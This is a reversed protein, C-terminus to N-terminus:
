TKSKRYGAAQAEEETWFYQEGRLYDIKVKGYHMSGPLHYVKEGDTQINGKIPPHNNCWYFWSAKIYEWIKKFM